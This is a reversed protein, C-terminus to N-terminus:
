IVNAYNYNSDIYPFINLFGDTSTIRVSKTYLRDVANINFM